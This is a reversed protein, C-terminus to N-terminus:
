KKSKTEKKKEIPESQQIAAILESVEAFPKHALYSLLAKLVEEKIKYEM